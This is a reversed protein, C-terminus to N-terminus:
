KLGKALKMAGRIAAVMSGAAAKGTGVLHQATGHDVSTRVIPLGLSVQYGDDMGHVTKFPILGQDHYLCLYVSFRKRNEETFASDAPIPGKLDNRNIKKLLPKLLDEDFRGILGQESAHPNLGLIAIPLNKRSTQLHRRLQDSSQIAASILSPTLRQEVENLPVHDTAVVVNLLKGVYGQFIQANPYARRLLGTHGMLGARHSQFTQKSVPGTVIGSLGLEQYHTVAFDFWGAENLGQVEVLKIRSTTNERDSHLLEQLKLLTDKSDVKNWNGFSSPVSMSNLIRAPPRKAFILFDFCRLDKVKLLASVAKITIELGIGDVDGTTIAM